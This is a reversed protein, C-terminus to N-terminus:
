NQKRSEYDLEGLCKIFKAVDKQPWSPNIVGTIYPEMSKWRFPGNKLTLKLMEARIQINTRKMM